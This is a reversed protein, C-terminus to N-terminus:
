RTRMKRSPKSFYIICSATLSMVAFITFAIRYGSTMDYILGAITPGVASGISVFLSILSFVTAFSVLGFCEGTILSQMMVIAGMALGFMFTGIFLTATRDSFAVVITWFSLTGVAEKRTWETMQVSMYPTVGEQKRPHHAYGDIDYVPEVTM